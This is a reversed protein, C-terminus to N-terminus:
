QGYRNRSFQNNVEHTLEGNEGIKFIICNDLEDGNTYKRIDSYDHEYPFTIEGTNENQRILVRAKLHGSHHSSEFTDDYLTGAESSNHQGM